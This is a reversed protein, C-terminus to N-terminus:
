VFGLFLSFLGKNVFDMPTPQWKRGWPLKRVWPDFWHRQTQQIAPSNKVM